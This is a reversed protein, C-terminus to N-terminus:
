GIAATGSTGLRDEPNLLTRTSEPSWGARYVPNNNVRQELQKPGVALLPASTGEFCVSAATEGNNRSHDWPSQAAAPREALHDVVPDLMPVM